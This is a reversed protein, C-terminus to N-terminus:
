LNFLQFAVILSMSAYPVAFILITFATLPILLKEKVLPVAHKFLILATLGHLTANVYMQLIPNWGNNLIFLSLSVARTVIIRHGNHPSFFHEFSLNGSNYLTYLWSAEADWEDFFPVSVGYIVVATLSLGTTLLFVGGIVLAQRTSSIM